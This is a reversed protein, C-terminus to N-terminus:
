NLLNKKKFNEFDIHHITCIVKKQKLQKKSIKNWTWPSMIWIINAEKIKDTSIEPNTEYWENRFRDVIWSENIENIFIKMNYQKEKSKNYIWLSM